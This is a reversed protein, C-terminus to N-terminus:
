LNDIKDIGSSTFILLVYDRIIGFFDFVFYNRVSYKVKLCKLESM